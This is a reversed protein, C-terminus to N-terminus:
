YGYGPTIEAAAHRGRRRGPTRQDPIRRARTIRDRKTRALEGKSERVPYRAGVTVKGKSTRVSKARQKVEANHKYQRSTVGRRRNAYKRGMEPDRRPARDPECFGCYKCYHRTRRQAGTGTTKAVFNSDDADFKGRHRGGCYYREYGREPRWNPHADSFWYRAAM